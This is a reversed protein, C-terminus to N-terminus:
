YHIKEKIKSHEYVNLLTNERKNQFTSLCKIISYLLCFTKHPLYQTNILYIKPPACFSYENIVYYINGVSCSLQLDYLIYM